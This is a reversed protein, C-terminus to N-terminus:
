NREGEDLEEETEEIETMMQQGRYTDVRIEEAEPKVKLKVKLKVRLKV